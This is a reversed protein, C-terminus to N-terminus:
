PRSTASHNPIVPSLGYKRCLKLYEKSREYTELWANLSDLLAPSHKSVAWSHFQTFGIAVSTDIQPLSDLLTRAISEDCVAYDIDGHAVLAILQEAGYQEIENIYITDGIEDGLNRIRLMAPSNKVVHVTKGALDLQSQISLSDHNLTDKRQILVQRNLVIPITLLLSDKVESTAILGYAILDYKGTELGKLQADFSMEASVNAQLGHTEAFANLLEYHFGSVTDGIAHFSIPDYETVANIIGEAKIQGYDRYCDRAAPTDKQSPLLFFVTLLVAVIVALLSYEKWKLKFKLTNRM